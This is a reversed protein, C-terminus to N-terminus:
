TGFVVFLVFVLTGLYSLVLGIIAFIKGKKVQYKHLMFLATHGIIIGPIGTVINCILSLIGLFFAFLAMRKSKKINNEAIRKGLTEQSIGLSDIAERTCDKGGACNRFIALPTYVPGWPIGWWGLVFTFFNYYMGHM